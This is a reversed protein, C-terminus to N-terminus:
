FPDRQSDVSEISQVEFDQEALAIGRFKVCNELDITASRSGDLSFAALVNGSSSLLTALESSAVDEMFALFSDIDNWHVVVESGNGWGRM